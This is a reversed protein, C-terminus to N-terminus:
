FVTGQPPTCFSAASHVDTFKMGEGALKDINPTNIKSEPNYCTLDGYGLDDTYIIIVNPKGSDSTGGTTNCSHCFLLLEPLLFIVIIKGM